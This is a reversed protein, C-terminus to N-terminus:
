GCNCKPVSGCTCPISWCKPSIVIIQRCHSSIWTQHTVRSKLSWLNAKTLNPTAWGVRLLWNPFRVLHSASSLKWLNILWVSAIGDWWCFCQWDSLSARIVSIILYSKGLLGKDGKTRIFDMAIKRFYLLRHHNKQSWFHCKKNLDCNIFSDKFM